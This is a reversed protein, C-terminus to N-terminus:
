KSQEEKMIEYQKKMLWGMAGVIATGAIEDLPGTLASPLWMDLWLVAGQMSLLVIIAVYVLRTTLLYRLIRQM